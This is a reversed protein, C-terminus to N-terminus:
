HKRALQLVKEWFEDFCENTRIRERTLCTLEAIQQGESANLKPSQLAKSLNDTHRLVCEGLVLGFMYEFKSM